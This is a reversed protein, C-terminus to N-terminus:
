KSQNYSASGSFGYGVTVQGSVNMQKGKYTMTDQLSKTVLNAQLKM